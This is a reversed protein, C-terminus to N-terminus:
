RRKAMKRVIAAVQAARGRETRAQLLGLMAQYRESRGLKEFAAGARPEGGAGGRARAPGGGRGAVRVGGGM